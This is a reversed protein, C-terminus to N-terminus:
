FYDSFIDNIYKDILSSSPYDHPYFSLCDSEKSLASLFSGEQELTNEKYRKNANLLDVILGEFDHIPVKFKDILTDKKFPHKESIWEGNKMNFYENLEGIIQNYLDSEYASNYANSHISYLDSKIDALEDGLLSNMSEKDNVIRSVNESNLEWFENHGQEAAILEMEETEPSLQKGALEKLIREKFIKLNEKNLEEIVDRYVDDTTDWYNDFDFEGGLISEITDRSPGDRRDDCFLIALDSRDGKWYVVKDKIVIDDLLVQCWYYFKEMDNEYCWILYENQWTSSEYGNVPDIKSMLGRKKLLSFWIEYSGFYKEVELDGDNFRELFDEIDAM